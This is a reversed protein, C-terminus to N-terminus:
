VVSRRRTLFKPKSSFPGSDRDRSVVPADPLASVALDTAAIPNTPALFM